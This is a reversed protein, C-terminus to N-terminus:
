HVKIYPATIRNGDADTAKFGSALNYITVLNKLGTDSLKYVTNLETVKKNCLVSVFYLAAGLYNGEGRALTAINDIVEDGLVTRIHGICSGKATQGPVRFEMKLTNGGGQSRLDLVEYGGATKEFGIHYTKKAGTIIVNGNFYNEEASPIDYDIHAGGKVQKLSVGILKNALLQITKVYEVSNRANKLKILTELDHGLEDKAGVYYYIDSKDINDAGSLLNTALKQYENKIGSHLIIANIINGSNLVGNAKEIFADSANYIAEFHKAWGKVFASFEQKFDNDIKLPQIYEFIGTNQKPDSSIIFEIINDSKIRKILLLASIAEQYYTAQAGSISGKKNAVSSGSDYLKYDQGNIDLSLDRLKDLVELNFLNPVDKNSFSVLGRKDQKVFMGDYDPDDLTYDYVAKNPDPADLNPNIKNLELELEHQVEPTYKAKTLQAENLTGSDKYFDRIEDFLEDADNEDFPVLQKFKEFNNELAMRRVLSSSATEALASSGEDRTGAILPVLGGIFNFDGGPKSTQKGNSNALNAFMSGDARDDGGAFVIREIEPSKENIEHLAEWATQANSEVVDVLNGFAKKCWYVKEKYDLPQSKLPDKKDLGYKHSLYIVPKNSSEDCNAMAQALKVHGITPPNFKGFSFVLVKSPDVPTEDETLRNFERRLCAESLSEHEWGSEIDQDRNYSSFASRDVIKVINGDQDSVAIGEMDADFYGRTKSKYFTDYDSKSQKFGEWLLMKILAAENLAKVLLTLVQRNSEVLELLDELKKRAGAKGRESKLKDIDKGMKEDIYDKLEKIFTNENITVQKNDALVKNEFTSWYDKMFKANSVLTTYGDNSVLQNELRNLRDVHTKIKDFNFKESGKVNLVPSMIYFNSPVNKLRTPDVKFTQAKNEGSYITHFCIGFDANKVQEYGPQGESFAYIIKNPQFTIYDKGNIEEERKSDKTFLCDGQWCEGSPISKALELGYKLMQAMTPRDGYKQDVQEPSSICNDAATDKVFSKLSVSNNPLGAYSSWCFLAPSGDIKTTINMRDSNSDQLKELTGEIKDDLEDLGDPGLLVLDEWHTQHTNARKVFPM